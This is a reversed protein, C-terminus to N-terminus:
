ATAGEVISFGTDIKVTEDPRQVGALLLEVATKGIAFRNSLVTTLPKPLVQGIELGNFGILALEEPVAINVALCHMFGGVAMDDNSFAVADIHVGGSLLNSLTKRGELTSSAQDTRCEAVLSLGTEALGECLGVYRAHARRDATWDHGVYAINCYGRQVLHHAMARGAEHHSLGVALDIPANDIDMLEAVRVRSNELMRRAGVTHDFGTTIIAAPQWALLSAILQHEIDLDYDTVGIMPRYPTASLGANIGRLVEPFVINSLSPLIVGIILSSSSALSGAARNPVYGLQEIAANVRQRTEPAISGKDRIVRSVTNESVGALRAVHALTVPKATADPAPPLGSTDAWRRENTM